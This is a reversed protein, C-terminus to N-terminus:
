HWAGKLYNVPYPTRGAKVGLEFAARQPWSPERLAARGILIADADGCVLVQEAQHPETILGVATVPIDVAERVARALHVQYGPGVPVDAPTLGGSSVDILDAGHDKLVSVLRITQDVDWGGAIWDTASLRVLIPKDAPWAARVADFVEIAFRSRGAFDGGYGDTRRNTLPSLFEHILYGHAAHIEVADFGAQDARRAAAAFSDIIRDIDVRTLEQPAAMGPFAIASPALPQWGGQEIPVSGTPNGPWPRWSSGKRGAHALQVCSAAGLDRIFGVTAGFADRQKDNWLGLDQPTIRGEPSVATAEVILLGFGGQARAGYHVLHWDNPVGDTAEVAYQDMPPLWVRNRVTLNRLTLPEFLKAM